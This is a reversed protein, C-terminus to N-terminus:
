IPFSFRKSESFLFLAEFLFENVQGNVQKVEAIIEATWTQVTVGMAHALYGSTWDQMADSDRPQSKLPTGM